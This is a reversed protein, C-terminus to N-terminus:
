FRLPAARFTAQVFVLGSSYAGIIPPTSGPPVPGSPSAQDQWAYRAGAGVSLEPDVRYQIEFSGQVLELPETFLTEVSRTGSLAGTMTVDRLPVQLTLTGQLRDDVIGTRVDVLPALQADFRVVTRVHELSSLYQVGALVAPYVADEYSGATMLRAAVFAPGAGLWADSQRSLRRRWTETWQVIDGTPECVSTAPLPTLLFPSCPGSSSDSHLGLLRTEIADIRTASWKFAVDARPGYVLPLVARSAADAGGQVSYELLSTEAWRRSLAIESTLDTRSYGYLVSVPNALAQVAPSGTAPAPAGPPTLPNSSGNAPSFLFASNEEGYQAYEFLALRVTRDHWAEGVTAMQLVEPIPRGTELDPIIAFASYDLTTNWEHGKLEMHATPVDVLDVGPNPLTTATIGLPAGAVAPTETERGRLEIRNTVVVTGAYDAFLVAPHM